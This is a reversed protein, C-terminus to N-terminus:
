FQNYQIFGLSVPCGFYRYFDSWLLLRTLVGSCVSLVEGSFVCSERTQFTSHQQWMHRWFLRLTVGSEKYCQSEMSLGLGLYSSETPSSRGQALMWETRCLPRSPGECIGPEESSPSTATFTQMLAARGVSTVPSSQLFFMHIILM